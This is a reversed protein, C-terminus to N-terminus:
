NCFKNTVLLNPKLELKKFQFSSHLSAFFWLKFVICPVNFSLVIM